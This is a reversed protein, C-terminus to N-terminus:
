FHILAASLIMSTAMMEEDEGDDCGSTEGRRMTEDREMDDDELKLTTLACVCMVFQGM